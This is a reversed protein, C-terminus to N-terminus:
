VDRRLLTSSPSCVTRVAWLSPSQRGQWSMYIAHVTSVGHSPLLVDVFYATDKDKLTGAWRRAAARQVRFLGEWIATFAVLQVLSFVDPTMQPGSLPANRRAALLLDPAAMETDLPHVRAGVRWMTPVPLGWAEPDM